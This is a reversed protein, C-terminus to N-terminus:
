VVPPAQETTLRRRWRRSVTATVIVAAVAATPPCSWRMALLRPRKLWPSLHQANAVLPVTFLIPESALSQPAGNM